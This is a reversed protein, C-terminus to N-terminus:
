NGGFKLGAEIRAWVIRRVVPEALSADLLM